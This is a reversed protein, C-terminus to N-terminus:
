KNIANLILALLILSSFFILLAWSYFPHKTNALEENLHETLKPGFREESRISNCDICKASAVKSFPFVPIWFLHVYNSYIFVETTNTKDCYPCKYLLPEFMRIFLKKKGYVIFM